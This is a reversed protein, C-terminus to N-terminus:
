HISTDLEYNSEDLWRGSVLGLISDWYVREMRHREKKYLHTNDKDPMYFYVQCWQASCNTMQVHALWVDEDGGNVSVMDGLEPYQPVIIDQPVIPLQPREYDVIIFEVCEPQDDSPYLMIKRMVDQGKCMVSENTQKVISNGSPLHSGVVSFKTGTIFAHYAEVIQLVFIKKIQLVVAENNSRIFVFEDTRYLTGNYNHHPIYLSRVSYGGTRERLIDSSAVNFLRNAIVIETEEVEFYHKGGM